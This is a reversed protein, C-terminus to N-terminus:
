RINEKEIIEMYFKEGAPSFTKVSKILNDRGSVAAVLGLNFIVGEMGQVQYVRNLTVELNNRPRSDLEKKKEEETKEAEKVDDREIDELSKRAAKQGSLQGTRLQNVWWLKSELGLRTEVGEKFWRTLEAERTMNPACITSKFFDQLFDLDFRYIGTDIRFGANILDVGTDMFLSFNFLQGRSLAGSNLQEISFQNYFTYEEYSMLEEKTIGGKSKLVANSNGLFGIYKLRPFNKKMGGDKSGCMQTTLYDMTLKGLDYAKSSINSLTGGDLTDAKIYQVKKTRITDVEYHRTDTTFNLGLIAPAGSVLLDCYASFLEKNGLLFTWDFYLEELNSVSLDNKFSAFGTGNVGVDFSASNGQYESWYNMLLKKLTDKQENTYQITESLEKRGVIPRYYVIDIGTSKVYLKRINRPSSYIEKDREYQKVYKSNSAESGDVRIYNHSHVVGSVLNDLNLREAM